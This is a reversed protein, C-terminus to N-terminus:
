SAAAFSEGFANVRISPLSVDVTDFFPDDIISDTLGEVPKYDATSLSLLGLEREGTAKIGADTFVLVKNGDRLHAHTVPAFLVQETRVEQVHTRSM